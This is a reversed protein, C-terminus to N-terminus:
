QLEDYTFTKYGNSSDINFSMRIANAGFIEDMATRITSKKYDDLRSYMEINNGNVRIWGISLAHEIPYKMSDLFSKSINDIKPITIRIYDDKSYEDEKCEYEECYTDFINDLIGELEYMNMKFINLADDDEFYGSFYDTSMIDQLKCRFYEGLVRYIDNIYKQSIITGTQAEHSTVPRVIGNIIWFQDTNFAFRKMLNTISTAEKFLGSNDLSNAINNLSAIIQRKNM